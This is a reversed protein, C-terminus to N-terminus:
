PISPLQALLAKATSDTPEYKLTNEWASRAAELEGAEAYLVGLNLWAAPFTPDRQLIAHYHSMATVTDGWVLYLNALNNELATFAPRLALAIQFARIAEDTRGVRHLAEGLNVWLMLQDPNMEALENWDQINKLEKQLTAAKALYLKGEEGRGLRVLTQGLNYTAWYHWPRQEVVGELHDVAEEVAGTLLLLSGVYYRYNLNDPNLDLGRRSYGLAKDLEGEEKYLESLRMYATAYSSDAALAQEYAQRAEDVKQLQAYARGMQLLAAPSPHAAQEKRYLDLAKHIDGQRFANNGMNLRVGQYNPDLALVAEYAGQAEDFRKLETFILGRLFPIDALRPAMLGASDALALAVTFDGRRSADEARIMLLAVTPDASQRQLASQSLHAEDSGSGCGAGIILTFLLSYFLYAPFRKGDDM